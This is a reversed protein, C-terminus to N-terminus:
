SSPPPNVDNAVAEAAEQTAKAKLEQAKELDFREKARVVKSQIYFSGGKSPDNANFLHDYNKTIKSLDAEKNVNLIQCAEEMSMGTKRTLADLVAEKTGAKANSVPNGGNKAANAAAQKYAAVFARTVVSGLSVVIQAIIRASAEKVTALYDVISSISPHGQIVGHVATNFDIQDIREYFDKGLPLQLIKQQLQNRFVTQNKKQFCDARVLKKDWEVDQQILSKLYYIHRILVDSEFLQQHYDLVIQFFQNRFTEVKLLQNVLPRRDMNELLGFLDITKLADGSESSEKKPVLSNGLTQDLDSPLWILKGNQNFDQYLLYNHAAGLYGDNHGLLLELALNKLFVPVDLRKNWEEELEEISGNWSKTNEIFQIFSILPNLDHVSSTREQLKYASQNTCAEIYDEENPGLYGLNAGLRLKGIAMPNEQMAGQFLAGRKYKEEGQGFSRKMFPNKYHDAMLYLGQPEENIFLRIYSARATPVQSADLIDYYLKERMYSPDTACSRLKFRRFGNLAKNKASKNKAAKPLVIGYSLKKFLRSTQGTIRSINAIIQIDELLNAHLKKLDDPATRIHLTPIEHMPHVQDLRRHSYNRAPGKFRMKPLSQVHRMAKDTRGYFDFPSPTERYFTEREIEHNREDLIVYQYRKFSSHPVLATHILPDLSQKNDLHYLYDNDIHVAMKYFDLNKNVRYNPAHVVSFRVTANLATVWSLYLTFLIASYVLM